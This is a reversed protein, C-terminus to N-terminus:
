SLEYNGIVELVQGNMLADFLRPNQAMFNTNSGKLKLANGKKGYFDDAVIITVQRNYEKDKSDILDNLQVIFTKGAYKRNIVAEYYLRIGSMLPKKM